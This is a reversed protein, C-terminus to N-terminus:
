SGGPHHGVRLFPAVLTSTSGSFCPSLAWQANGARTGPSDWSSSGWLSQRQLDASNLKLLGPPSYSVSLRSKLLGPVCKSAGLALVTQSTGPNYTFSVAQSIKPHTGSHCLDAPINELLPLATPGMQQARRRGQQDPALAALESGEWRGQQASGSQGQSLARWFHIWCPWVQCAADTM